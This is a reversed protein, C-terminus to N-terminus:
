LVGPWDIDEPSPPPYAREREIVEDRVKQIKQEDADLLALVSEAISKIEPEIQSQAYRLLRPDAAIHPLEEPRCNYLFWERMHQRIDTDNDPLSIHKVDFRFEYEHGTSLTVRVDTKGYGGNKPVTQVIECLWQNGQEEASDGTFTVKKMTYHNTLGEARQIVVRQISRM